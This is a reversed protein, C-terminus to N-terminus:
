TFPVLSAELDPPLPSAFAVREGTTPHAFALEAAHLWPRGAPLIRDAKVARPPTGDYRDDNVVPHGIAALHVRIQHTRGTELRCALRTAVFPESYGTVLTAYRREVQHRALAAVLAARAPLTRAVVLLGSTGKDLRHVIGPRHEAGELDAMAALDPYRALLGAVLTGTRNGNGPHVVLGAPKDVVVLDDDEYVVGFAVAPDAVLEEAETPHLDPVDASLTDGTRVKRSRARVPRGGLRVGGGAVLDSVAQRPYGTLLAVARDVREGDLAAPIVWQMPEVGGTPEVVAPSDAMLTRAEEPM